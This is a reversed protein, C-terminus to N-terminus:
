QEADGRQRVPSDLQNRHNPSGPSPAFGGV